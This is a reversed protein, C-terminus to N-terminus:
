AVQATVEPDTECMVWNRGHRKTARTIPSLRHRLRELGRLKRPTAPHCLARIQGLAIEAFAMTREREDAHATM